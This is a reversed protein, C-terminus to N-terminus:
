FKPGTCQGKLMQGYCRVSPSPSPLVSGHCEGNVVAGICASRPYVTEGPLLDVAGNPEEPLLPVLVVVSSDVPDDLGPVARASGGVLVRFLLLCSLLNQM